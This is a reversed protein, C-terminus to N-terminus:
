EVKTFVIHYNTIMNKIPGDIIVSGGKEAYPMM